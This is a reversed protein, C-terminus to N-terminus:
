RHSAQGSPWTAKRDLPCKYMEEVSVTMSTCARHPCPGGGTMVACWTFELGGLSIEILM